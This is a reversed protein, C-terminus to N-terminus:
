RKRRQGAGKFDKVVELDAAREEPTFPDPEDDVFLCRDAYPDTRCLLPQLKLLQDKLAAREKPHTARELRSELVQALREHMAALARAEFRKSTPTKKPSRVKHARRLDEVARVLGHCLRSEPIEGDAVRIVDFESVCRPDHALSYISNLHYTTTKTQGSGYPSIMYINDDVGRAAIPLNYSRITQGDTSIIPVGVQKSVRGRCAKRRVFCEWVKDTDDRM